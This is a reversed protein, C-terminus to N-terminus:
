LLQKAFFQLSEASVLDSTHLKKESWLCIDALRPPMEPETWCFASFREIPNVNFKHLQWLMQCIAAAAWLVDPGLANQARVERM